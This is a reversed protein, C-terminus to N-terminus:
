DEVVHEAFGACASDWASADFAGDSSLCKAAAFSMALAHHTNDHAFLGQRGLTVLGERQDVHALAASLRADYGHDYVPYM